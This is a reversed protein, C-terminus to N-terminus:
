GFLGKYIDDTSYKGVWEKAAELTIPTISGRELFFEGNRKRYLTEGDFLNISNTDIITATRTNYTKGNIIRRM